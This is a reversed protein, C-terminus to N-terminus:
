HGNLNVTNKLVPPQLPLIVLLHGNVNNGKRRILLGTINDDQEQRICKHCPIKCGKWRDHLHNALVLRWLPKNAEKDILRTGANTEIETVYKSKQRNDFFEENCFLSKTTASDLTIVIPKEQNSDQLAEGSNSTEQNRVEENQVSRHMQHM